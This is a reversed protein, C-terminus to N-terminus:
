AAMRELALYRVGLTVARAVFLIMLSLWLGHNGLAPLLIALGAFYILTSELMANRLARTRTAGIFIGDLMWSPGGVIPAAVIYPLFKRAESRVDPSTSMADILLPGAVLFAAGLLLAAVMGWTCTMMVSRRLALRARGGVAFGVLAEAAFAFGDLGYATVHLFQLLVQNAALTLDGLDAALFLFSVFAIELVVTRIILDTNVAAMRRLQVRDFVQPWCRWVGGAFAQRCLFQGLALGGWEAICTASAVGKVGFGLGIVFLLDLIVNVGNMTIQLVLVSRTREMAILWGTMGFISIAAPASLIRISIYDSALSEVETSAPSILLAAAFLPWQLLMLLLGAAIGILLSRTLLVSVEVHDRRGRAQSALGSTGLRLFGFFWYISTIIIAGIGVAGIPAALGMQGVVGTDVAGLLPVTANSLVIPLAVKLVRRHTVSEPSIDSM